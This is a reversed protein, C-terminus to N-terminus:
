EYTKRRKVQWIVIGLIFLIFGIFIYNFYTTATKPLRKEEKEEEDREEIIVEREDETVDEDEINEEEDAVEEALVGYISFHDVTTTITGNVIEGGIYVQNEDSKNYYYIATEEAEEDVGMTLVFEGTFDEYGSPYEFNFRYMEGVQLFGGLDITRGVRDTVKYWPSNLM